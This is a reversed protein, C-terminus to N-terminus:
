ELHKPAKSKDKIHSTIVVNRLLDKNNTVKLKLRITSICSLKHLQQQLPEHYKQAKEEDPSSSM